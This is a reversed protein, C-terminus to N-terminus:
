FAILTSNEFYVAGKIAILVAWVCRYITLKLTQVIM